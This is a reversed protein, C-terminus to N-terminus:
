KLSALGNEKAIQNYVATFNAVFKEAELKNAKIWPNIIKIANTGWDKLHYNFWKKAIDRESMIKNYDHDKFCYQKTFDPNINSWVSSNDDLEKLYKASIKEIPMETPLLVINKLGQIRKMEAKNNQIDGDIFIISEPFNFVPIKQNALGILQSCSFTSDVFKLKSKKTKLLAKVFAQAERDETFAFIKIEQIREINVNLRNKITRFTVDPFLQIKHNRKELFVVKVQNLTAQHQNGFDQLECCREILSLSHTTFIIQIKYKSAFARLADVLKIQSGPYLTADIEDIALIGGKYHNPYQEKLRKFSLIALLIKGINDQGASNQKWDYLNTNIGQTNKDPSELYNTGVIEDDSILIKSHWENFLSEEKETLEQAKSDTLKIDEGIPLLRKLSLYIVPLQIHGSGKERNGKRWFRVDDGRSMSELIFPESAGHLHLTWEHSKPLDFEPSLRFKEKFGSRYSGGCLPKEGKMPNDALSISFPQSLLGLLTTKQTGNLGAIATLQSGLEFSVNEFGRFKVIDIKQIIM